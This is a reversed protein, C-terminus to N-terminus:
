ARRPDEPRVHRAHHLREAVAHREILTPSSTISCGPTLQPAHSAHRPPSSLRQGRYWRSPWPRSPPMASSTATGAAFTKGFGAFRDNSSAADIGSTKVVASCMIRVRACRRYPSVTSTFAAPLPTPTAAIWIAFSCPARTM